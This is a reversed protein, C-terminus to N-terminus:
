SKIATRILELIDNAGRDMALEEPTLGFDDEHLPDAGHDLLIKVIEPRKNSVAEFLPTCNDENVVSVDLGAAILREVIEAHGQGAAAHLASRGKRDFIAGKSLLFEAIEYLGNQSAYFLGEALGKHKDEVTTELTLIYELAEKHGNSAAMAFAVFLPDGSRYLSKMAEVSNESAAINFEINM